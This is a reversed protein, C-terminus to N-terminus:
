DNLPKSTRSDRLDKVEFSANFNVKGGPDSHAALEHSPVRPVGYVDFVSMYVRSRGIWDNLQLDVLLLDM